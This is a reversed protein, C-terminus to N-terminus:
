FFSSLSQTCLALLPLTLKLFSLSRPKRRKPLFLSPLRHTMVEFLLSFFNEGEAKVGSTRQGAQRPQADGGGSESAGTGGWVCGGVGKRSKDEGRM